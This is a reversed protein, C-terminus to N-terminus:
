VVHLVVNDYAKDTTHNHRQWDSSSIHVEVNGAWVTDGIKIRANQFDPGSDTNPLGASSVELKEGQTTQLDSHDFLRFKWVYHLFDETFLMKLLLSIQCFFM